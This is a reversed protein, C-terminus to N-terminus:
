AQFLLKRALESDKKKRRKKKIPLFTWLKILIFVNFAVYVDGCALLLVYRSPIHDRPFVTVAYQVAM